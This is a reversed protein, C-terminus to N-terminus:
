RGMAGVRVEWPIEDPPVRGMVTETPEMEKLAQDSRRAQMVPLKRSFDAGEGPALLMEVPIALSSLPLELRDVLALMLATVTRPAGGTNTVRGAIELYTGKKDRSFTSATLKVAVDPASGGARALAAEGMDRFRQLAVAQAADAAQAEAVGAKAQALRARTEDAASMAIWAEDIAESMAFMDRWYLRQAAGACGPERADRCRWARSSERRYYQTLLNLEGPRYESKDGDASALRYTRLSGDKLRDMRTEALATSERDFTSTAKFTAPDFFDCDRRSRFAFPPAFHAYVEVTTEPPNFFRVEFTQAEGPGLAVIPLLSTQGALVFGWQDIAQLTLPPMEVEAKGLNRVEGSVAMAPRGNEKFTFLDVNELVVEGARPPPLESKKETTKIFASLIPLPMLYARVAAQRKLEIRDAEKLSIDGSELATRARRSDLTAQHAELANDINFGITQAMCIMSATQEPSFDPARRPIDKGGTVVVREVKMSGDGAGQVDTRTAPAPPAALTPAPAAEPLALATLATEPAAIPRLAESPVDLSFPKAFTLSICGGPLLLALMVAAPKLWNHRARIGM